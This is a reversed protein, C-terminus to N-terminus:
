YNGHVHMMGDNHWKTMNMCWKVMIKQAQTYINDANAHVLQHIITCLEQFCQVYLLASLAWCGPPISIGQVFSGLGGSMLDSGM